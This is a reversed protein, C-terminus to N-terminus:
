SSAAGPRSWTPTSRVPLYAPGPIPRRVGSRVSWSLSRDRSRSRALALLVGQV